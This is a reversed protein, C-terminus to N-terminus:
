FAQAIAKAGTPNPHLGDGSNYTPHLRAPGAPDRLIVDVDVLRDFGPFPLDTRRGAQDPRVGANLQDRRLAANLQDRNLAANPQDRNLAANPQNQRLTANM